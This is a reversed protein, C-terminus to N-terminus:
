ASLGSPMQNPLPQYVINVSFSAEDFGLGDPRNQRLLMMEDLTSLARKNKQESDSMNHLLSLDRPSVSRNEEDFLLFDSVRESITYNSRRDQDSDPCKCPKAMAHSISMISLLLLITSPCPFLQKLQFAM